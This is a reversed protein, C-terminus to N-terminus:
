RKHVTLLRTRVPVGGNVDVEIVAEFPRIKGNPSAATHLLEAVHTPDCAFEVAAETGFTTLGSLVLMWKDAQTGPLLAVIAYDKALPFEPRTYMAPEGPKPQRNVIGWTTGDQVITFETTSPLVKLSPNQSPAGIFVLNKNRAEDWTVLRSRKLVFNSHAEDFLRSVERIAAVEGVGTYSEVYHEGKALAIPEDDSTLHLDGNGSRIFLANSYIVLPPDETLFPHWLTELAPAPATAKRSADWLYAALGLALFVATALLTPWLRAKPRPPIGGQASPFGSVRPESPLGELAAPMTAPEPFATATRFVPVYQGKPIEVILDEFLGEAAFYATLKQRLIRAQTRVISDESSNYGATRQFVHVGIQQETAEEPADRLSCDTVYLLFDRLRVSGRLHPSAIVRQILQWRPDNQLDSSLSQYISPQEMHVVLM